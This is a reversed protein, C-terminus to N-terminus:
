LTCSLLWKSQHSQFLLHVEWSHPLSILDLRRCNTADWSNLSYWILYDCTTGHMMVCLSSQAQSLWTQRTGPFSLALLYSVMGSLLSISWEHSIILPPSCPTEGIMNINSPPDWHETLQLLSATTHPGPELTGTYRLVGPSGVWDWLM